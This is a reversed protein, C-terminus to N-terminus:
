RYAGDRRKIKENVASLSFESRLIPPALRKMPQLVQGDAHGSYRRVDACNSPAAQLFFVLLICFRHIGM